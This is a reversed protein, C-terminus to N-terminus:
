DNKEEALVVPCWWEMYRFKEKGQKDITGTPEFGKLMIGHSTIFILEAKKLTGLLKDNWEAKNEFFLADGNIDYLLIGIGKLKPEKGIQPYFKYQIENGKTM